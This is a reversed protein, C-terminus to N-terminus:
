SKLPIVAFSELEPYPQGPDILVVEIEDIVLEGLKQRRWPAIMALAAAHSATGDFHAITAHPIYTFDHIGPVAALEFLRAHLQALSEGGGVELFIADQFANLGGMTVTFPSTSSAPEIAAQAFEELRASSIEDRARPDDVM